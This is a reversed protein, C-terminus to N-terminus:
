YQLHPLAGPLRIPSGDSNYVILFFGSIPLNWDRTSDPMTFCKSFCPSGGVSMQGSLRRLVSRCSRFPSRKVVYMTTTTPKTVLMAAKVPSTLVPLLWFFIAAITSM